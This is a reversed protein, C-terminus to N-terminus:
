GSQPGHLAADYVPLIIEVATGKGVDSQISIHGNHKKIISYCIAMGLGMDKFVNEGNDKLAFSPHFIKQIYESPIGRGNDKILIKAYDGPNLTYSNERYLTLNEADIEILPVPNDRVADKANELLNTLVQRVQRDDVYVSKLKKLSPAVRVFPKVEPYFNLADKLIAHFEHEEPHIWGGRSFSILKKALETCQNAAQLSDELMKKVPASVPIEDIVISLNGIIVTLINNFDHAVGGALIGISELRRSNLFEMEVRKRDTIDIITELVAPQNKYLIRTGHSELHIIGGKRTVGRFEYCPTYTVSDLALRRNLYDEMEPRDAKMALVMPSQGIIEENCYGFIVLFRPNVYRIAGDQVIYIGVMSKEALTKFKDESERLKHSTQKHEEIERALESHIKTKLRYRAYIFFVSIFALISILIFFNRVITQRELSLEQLDKNKKLLDIEQEKKSIDYNIQLQDMKKQTNESYLINSIDKYKKYFDLSQSYDKMDEFTESLVLLTDMVDTKADIRQSIALARNLWSLAGKHDGMMRNIRGMNTMTYAIGRKDQLEEKLAISRAFFDKAKNYDKLETYVEGINNTTNAIYLKIGLKRNMIQARTLCELAKKYDKLNRYTIGLNNEVKAKGRTDGLREFGAKADLFYVLCRPYDKKEMHTAAIVNNSDARGREDGIKEYLKASNIGYELAQSFNSLRMNLQAMCFNYRAMGAMDGSQKLPKNARAYYEAASRYEGVLWKVEGLNLYAWAEGDKDGIKKAIRFSKEAYTWAQKIEGMIGSMASLDNLLTMEEKGGARNADKLLALTLKGFELCTQPNNEKNRAILSILGDIQKEKFAQEFQQVPEHAWSFSFLVSFCTLFFLHRWIIKSTNDNM